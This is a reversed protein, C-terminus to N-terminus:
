HSLITPRKCLKLEGSMGLLQQVQLLTMGSIETSTNLGYYQRATEQSVAHKRLVTCEHQGNRKIQFNHYDVNYGYM